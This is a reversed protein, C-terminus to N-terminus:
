GLWAGGGFAVQLKQNRGGLRAGRGKGALKSQELLDRFADDGGASATGSSAATGGRAAAADGAVKKVPVKPAFQV